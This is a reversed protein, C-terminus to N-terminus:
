KPMPQYSVNKVKGNEYTTVELFNDTDTTRIKRGVLRVNEEPFAEFIINADKVKHEGACPLKPFEGTVKGAVKELKKNDAELGSLLTKAEKLDATLAVNEDAKKQLGDNKTKAEKLTSIQQRSSKEFENVKRQLEDFDAVKKELGYIKKTAESLENSKEKLQLGVKEALAKYENLEKRGRDEKNDKAM